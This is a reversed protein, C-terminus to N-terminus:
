HGKIDPLRKQHTLLNISLLYYTVAKLLGM